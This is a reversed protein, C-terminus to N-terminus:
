LPLIAVIEFTDPDVIIIEGPVVFFRFYEYDPVISIIERPLPRLVVTRPVAVGIRVNFDVHVPEVKVHEIATRVRTQQEGSLKPAPRASGAKAAPQGAKEGAANAPAGAKPQGAKEAPVKGAGGAPKTTPEGEAKPAAGAKSGKTEEAPKTTKQDAGAKPPQAKEAPAAAGAPQKIEGKAAGPKVAGEGTPQKLEGKAAGPAEGGVEKEREAGFRHRRHPEAGCGCM